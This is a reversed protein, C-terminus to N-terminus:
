DPTTQNNGLELSILNARITAEPKSYLQAGYLLGGSNPSANLFIHVFKDVTIIIYGPIWKNQKWIEVEFKRM